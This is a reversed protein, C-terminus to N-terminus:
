LNTKNIYDIVDKRKIKYIKGIRVYPIINKGILKNIVTPVSVGLMTSAERTSVLEEMDPTNDESVDLTSILIAIEQLQQSVGLIKQIIKKSDM